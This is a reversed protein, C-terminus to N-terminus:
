HFRDQDNRRSCSLCLGKLKKALKILPFKLVADAEQNGRSAKLKKALKILPFLIFQRPNRQVAM